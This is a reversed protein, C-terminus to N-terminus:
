STSEPDDGDIQALAEDVTMEGRQVAELLRLRRQATTEPVTTETAAPERTSLPGTEATAASGTFPETVIGAGPTSIPGTAEVDADAPTPPVPTVPTIPTPPTPPTPPIHVRGTEANATTSGGSTKRREGAEDMENVVQAIKQTVSSVWGRAKDWDFDVNVQSSSDAGAAETSPESGEQDTTVDQPASERVMTVSPDTTARAKLDGSVAKIRIEPGESGGAIRWTRKAGAPTWEGGVKADGSVARFSLSAGTAPLISDLTIDGSVTDFTYSDRNNMTVNAQVDGSVTTIRANKMTLGDIFIDGNVARLATWAEGGEVRIDGNATNAEISGTVQRLSLDGSATHSSVKGSIRELEIDGNATAVTVRAQIDAAHVDGSAAKVAVSSGDALTRPLDIQIDYRAQTNFKMKKLDWEDPNFGEKLQTKVKKALDGLTSSIQWNPHISIRNGEVDVQIRSDDDSKRSDTREAIIQVDKRDSTTISVDGGSNTVSLVLAQTPDIEVRQHTSRSDEFPMISDSAMTQQGKM